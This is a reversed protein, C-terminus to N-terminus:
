GAGPLVPATEGSICYRAAGDGDQCIADVRERERRLLAVPDSDHRVFVRM